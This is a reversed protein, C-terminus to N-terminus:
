EIEFRQKIFRQVNIPTSNFPVIEGLWSKDRKAEQIYHKIEAKEIRKLTSEKHGRRWAFGFKVAMVNDVLNGCNQGVGMPHFPDCSSGLVDGTKTNVVTYRDITAGNNDFIIINKM